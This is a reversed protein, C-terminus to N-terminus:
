NLKYNDLGGNQCFLALNGLSRLTSFTQGGEVTSTDWLILALCCAQQTTAASASSWAECTTITWTWQRLVRNLVHMRYILLAARLGRSGTVRFGIARERAIASLLLVQPELFTQANSRSVLTGSNAFGM